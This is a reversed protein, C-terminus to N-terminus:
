PVRAMVDDIWVRASSVRTMVQEEGTRSALPPGNKIVDRWTGSIIGVLKANKGAGVYVPGGSDGPASCWPLPSQSKAPCVIRAEELRDIRSTGARLEGDSIDIGRSLRGTLGWGALVVIAGPQESGDGLPPCYDTELDVRLLALDNTGLTDKKWDPNVFVVTVPQEEVSVSVAGSVVHAATLVWRSDLQAGSAEFPKGNTSKGTVRRVFNRFGRGYAVYKADSINDDTTGGYSPTACLTVAALLLAALTRAKANM